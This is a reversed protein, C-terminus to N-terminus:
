FDMIIILKEGEFHASYPRFPNAREADASPFFILEGTSEFWYDFQADPFREKIDMWLMNISTTSKGTNNM